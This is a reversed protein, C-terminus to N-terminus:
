VGAAFPVSWCVKQFIILTIQLRICKRAVVPDIRRARHFLHEAPCMRPSLEEFRFLCLRAFRM